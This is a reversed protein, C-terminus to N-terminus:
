KILSQRVVFDSDVVTMQPPREGNLVELLCKAARQGMRKPNQQITTIQPSTLTAWDWDDFAAVGIESPVTIQYRALIRVVRMLLTGKLAYLASKVTFERTLAVIQQYFTEDTMTADITILSLQVGQQACADKVARYRDERPFNATVAESIVIIQQYNLRLMYDTLLKSYQYNDTTVAPWTAPALKRDIIVTPVGSDRLFQYDAAHKSIPQLIVGDARLDLLRELQQRERDLSNDSNMLMIQYHQGEFVQDAGKFMMSSFINEIDAVIIGIIFTQKKTISQAQRNVHYHKEAIVREITRKTKESMKEYHGNLYRSVTAKSVGALNAVDQITVQAKAM